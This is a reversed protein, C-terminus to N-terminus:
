SPIRPRDGDGAPPSETAEASGGPPPAVEADLGPVLRGLLAGLAVGALVDSPYHMGLYPRSACIGAALGYVGPRSSPRIRGLAIAATASSTAHASPFSLKSPARALPPHGEILPRERGVALKILYNVGIATPAVGAAILWRRRRGGGVAAGAIGLGVWVAGWEGVKGLGRMVADPAPGHWRTRMVRLAQQDLDGLVRLVPHRQRKVESRLRILRRRPEPTRERRGFVPRLM